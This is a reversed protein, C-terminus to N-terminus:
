SKAKIMDFVAIVIQITWASLALWIVSAVLGGFGVKRLRLITFLIALGALTFAGVLLPVSLLVALIHITGNAVADDVKEANTTVDKSHYNAHVLLSALGAILLGTISLVAGTISAHHSSKKIAAESRTATNM